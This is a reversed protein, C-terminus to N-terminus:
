GNEDSDGAHDAPEGDETGGGDEAPPHPVEILSSRYWVGEDLDAPLYAFDPSVVDGNVNRFGLEVRGDALRRTTIQGLSSGDFEVEQAPQWSIAPSGAGSLAFISDLEVDLSSYWINVRAEAPLFRRMPLVLTGDNLEAAHEVRGDEALRAVVRLQITPDESQEIEPDVRPEIELLEQLEASDGVGIRELFRTNAADAQQVSCYVGGVLVAYSTFAPGSRLEGDLDGLLGGYGLPDQGLDCHSASRVAARVQEPGLEANRSASVLASAQLTPAIVSEVYTLQAHVGAAHEFSIAQGGDLGDLLSQWSAAISAYEASASEGAAFVLNAVAQPNFAERRAAAQELGSESLASELRDAFAALLSSSGSGAPAVEAPESARSLGAISPRDFIGDLLQTRVGAAYVAKEQIGAGIEAEPDDASTVTTVVIGRGQASDDIQASVTYAAGEVEVNVPDYTPGSLVTLDHWYGYFGIENGDGDYAIVGTLLWSPGHSPFVVSLPEVEPIATSNASSTEENTHYSAGAQWLRSPMPRARDIPRPGGRSPGITYILAEGEGGPFDEGGLNGVRYNVQVPDGAVVETPIDVKEIKLLPLRRHAEEDVISLSLTFETVPNQLERDLYTTAEVGYVDPPLYQEIRSNRTGDVDDNHAVQGPVVSRLAVIPAVILVTDGTESKLEVRVRAGQPLTFAFYQSPHGTLFVSQCSESTWFGTASLEKDPTLTGLAQPECTAVRTIEIEFDAPGRVRGATTTAELLYVGAQLEREIRADLRGAGGDDIETIRNGDGDLLYLFSDAEASMVDVRIRGTATTEFRYTHADSNSRFRSDCDETTWRGEARLKSGAASSLTGLDITECSAGNQAAQEARVQVPAQASAAGAGVLALMAALLAVALGAM